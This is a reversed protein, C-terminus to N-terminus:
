EGWRFIDINVERAMHTREMVERVTDTSLAQDCLWCLVQVRAHASWDDYEKEGMM